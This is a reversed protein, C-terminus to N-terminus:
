LFGYHAEFRLSIGSDRVFDSHIVRNWNEDSPEVKHLEFFPEIEFFVWRRLANFRYRISFRHQEADPKPEVYGFSSIGVILAAKEGVSSIHFLGSRWESSDFSELDRLSFNYRLESKENLKYGTDLLFRAGWGDVVYYEIAPQINFTVSDDFFKRRYTASARTYLQNEGWGIRGSTSVNESKTHLFRVAAGLSNQSIKFAEPRVSEYPLTQFDDDEGDSLIIEVKNELNPLKAKVKFKIPFSGGTFVEGERPEWGMVFHGWAKAKNKGLENEAFFSDLYNATWDMTSGVNEVVSNVDVFLVKLREQELEKEIFEIENEIQAENQEIEETKNEETKNEEIQTEITSSELKEPTPPQSKSVPSFTTANDELACTVEKDSVLEGKKMEQQATVPSTKIKEQTSVTKNQALCTNQLDDQLVKEASTLELSIVCLWLLLSWKLKIRVFLKRTKIKNNTM